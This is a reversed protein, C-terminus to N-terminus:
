PATFVNYFTSSLPVVNGNQMKGYTVTENFLRPLTGGLATSPRTFDLPPVLGDIALNTTSNLAALVNARTPASVSRAVTVFAQIASWVSITRLSPVQAADVKAIQSSYAAYGVGGRLFSDSVYLGNGSNPLQKLLSAEFNAPAIIPTSIGQQSASEIYKASDQARTSMVVADTGVATAQVNSSVDAAGAPIATTKAIAARRGAAVPTLLKAVGAGSASDTYALGFKKAGLKDAGLTVMGAVIGVTGSTIPFAIPSSYDSTAQQFLGLNAMGAAQLIPNVSNGAMSWEGVVAVVNPDAVAQRACQAGIDTNGQTTCITVDLAHGNIGGSANVAQVAAKVGVSVDTFPNTDSADNIEVAHVPAGQLPVATTSPGPGAGSSAAKNGKGSGCAAAAMVLALLVVECRKFAV